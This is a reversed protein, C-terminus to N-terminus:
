AEPVDNPDIGPHALVVAVTHEELTLQRIRHNVYDVHLLVTNLAPDFNIPSEALCVMQTLEAGYLQAAFVLATGGNPTKTTSIALVHHDPMSPGFMSGYPTMKGIFNRRINGTGLRAYDEAVSFAPARVFDPGFLKACVNIGIKTLVRFHVDMDITLSQHIHAEGTRAMTGESTQSLPNCRLVTLITAVDDAADARANLQKSARMFLRSTMPTADQDKATSPPGLPELWVAFDAALTPQEFSVGCSYNTGDWNLPTHRLIVEFGERRKEIVTVMDATIAALITDLLQKAAAQDKAYLRFTPPEGAILQPWIHTEGGARMDAELLTGTALDHHFSAAAQISPAGRAGSRKRTGPQLFLRAYALPSARLFKTELPSFVATNCRACVCDRLIWASDDGGLGAPVVHEATFPGGQDCYICRLGSINAAMSWHIPHVAFGGAAEAIQFPIEGEPATGNEGGARASM